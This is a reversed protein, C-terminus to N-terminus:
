ISPCPVQEMVEKSAVSAIHITQRKDREPTGEAGKRDEHVSILVLHILKQLDTEVVSGELIKRRTRSIFAPASENKLVSYRARRYEVNCIRLYGPYRRSQRIREVRSLIRKMMENDTDQRIYFTPIGVATGFIIQRRESEVFPRDPIHAHSIRGDALYKFALCYLLNQMDVAKGMDGSFQEFLSYHRSEFGSFGM